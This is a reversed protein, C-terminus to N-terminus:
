SIEDGGFKFGGQPGQFRSRFISDRIPRKINHSGFEHSMKERVHKNEINQDIEYGWNESESMRSESKWRPVRGM